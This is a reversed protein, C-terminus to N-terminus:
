HSWGGRSRETRSVHMREKSSAPCCHLHWLLQLQSVHCDISLDKRVGGPFFVFVFFFRVEWPLRPAAAASVRGVTTHVSCKHTRLPRSLTHTHTHAHRAGCHLFTQEPSKQNFNFGFTKRHKPRGYFRDTPSFKFASAFLKPIM